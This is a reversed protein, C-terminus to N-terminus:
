VTEADQCHIFHQSEEKTAQQAEGSIPNFFLWHKRPVPGSKEAGNEEITTGNNGNGNSAGANTSGSSNYRKRRFNTTVLLIIIAAYFVM